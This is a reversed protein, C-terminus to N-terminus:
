RRWLSRACSEAYGFKAFYTAKDTAFEGRGDWAHCILVTPQRKELDESFALAEFSDSGEKYTISKKQMLTM